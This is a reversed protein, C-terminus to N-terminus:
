ARRVRYDVGNWIVRKPDRKGSAGLTVGDALLYYHVLAVKRQTEPDVIFAMISRTGHMQNYAPDPLKDYVMMTILGIGQNRFHKLMSEFISNLTHQSVFEVPYEPLDTMFLEM